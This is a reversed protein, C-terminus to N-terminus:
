DWYVSTLVVGKKLTIKKVKDNKINGWNNKKNIKSAIKKAEDINEAVVVAELINFRDIENTYKFFKM